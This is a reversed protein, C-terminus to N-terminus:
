LGEGTGTNKIELLPQWGAAQAPAGNLVGWGKSTDEVITPVGAVAVNLPSSGAAFYLHAPHLGLAHLTREVQAAQQAETHLPTSATADPAYVSVLSISDLVRLPLAKLELLAKHCHACWWAFFLLPRHMPLMVQAGSATFVTEHAIERVWAPNARQLPGIDAKLADVSTIGTQATAARHTDERQPRSDSLTARWVGVGVGVTVLLAIAIWGARSGGPM